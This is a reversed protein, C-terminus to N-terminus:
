PRPLGPGGRRTGQSRAGGTSTEGVRQTGRSTNGGTIRYSAYANTFVLFAIPISHYIIIM